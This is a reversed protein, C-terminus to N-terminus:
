KVVMLMIIVLLVVMEIARFQIVVKDYLADMLFLTITGQALAEEIARTREKRRAIL